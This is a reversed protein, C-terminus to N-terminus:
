ENKNNVSMKILLDIKYKLEDINESNQKFGSMVNAFIHALEKTTINRNLQGQPFQELAAAIDKEFMLVSKKMSEKTFPFTSQYLDKAEESRNLIEHMEITWVDFVKKLKDMPKSLETSEKKVRESLEAALYLIVANYIHEKGPYILYLAPRSIGAQKAIDNMTVKVYGYKVFVEKAAKLVRSEKNEM